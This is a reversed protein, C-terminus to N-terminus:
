HLIFCVRYRSTVEIWLWRDAESIDMGSKSPEEKAKLVWYKAILDSMDVPKGVKVRIKNFISPITSCM